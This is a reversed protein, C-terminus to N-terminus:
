PAGTTYIGQGASPSSPLLKSLLLANTASGAAGTLGGALANASGLIGSAQANGLGTLANASNTAAGTAAGALSNAGSAMTGAGTAALGSGSNLWAQLASTLGTFGQQAAGTAYDAGAKLQNGGLGTTTAQNSIAKQGWDQAFQFGPLQSLTATQNAGPTLLAKLTASAPDVIGLGTNLVNQGSDIVPQIAGKAVGFMQQIQALSAQQAAAQAAAANKSASSSILAGGISGAAGIGASVAAGVPM